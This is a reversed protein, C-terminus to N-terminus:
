LLSNSFSFIILCGTFEKDFLTYLTWWFCLCTEFTLSVRSLSFIISRVFFLNFFLIEWTYLLLSNSIVESIFIFDILSLFNPCLNINFISIFLKTSKRLLLSFFNSGSPKCCELRSISWSLSYLNFLKPTLWALM